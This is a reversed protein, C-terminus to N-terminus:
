KGGKGMRKYESVREGENRRSQKGTRGDGRGMRVGGVWGRDNNM